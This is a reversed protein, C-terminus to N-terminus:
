KFSAQALKREYQAPDRKYTIAINGGKSRAVVAHLEGSQGDYVEAVSAGYHNIQMHLVCQAVARNADTSSNNQVPQRKHNYYTTKIVRSM